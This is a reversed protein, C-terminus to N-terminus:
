ESYRSYLYVGTLFFASGLAALTAAALVTEESWANARLLTNIAGIPFWAALASLWGPLNQVPFFSGGFFTMPTIFFSNVLSIDDVQKVLMGVVMGMSSFCFAGLLVGAFWASSKIGTGFSVFGVALVLTGFVIARTMGGLVIGWVAAVHTVPSLVLSQFHRFYL